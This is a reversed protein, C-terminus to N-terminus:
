YVFLTSMVVFIVVKIADYLRVMVSGCGLYGVEVCDLGLVYGFWDWTGSIMHPHMGSMVTLMATIVTKCETSTICM